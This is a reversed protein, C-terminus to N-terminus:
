FISKVAIKKTIDFFIVLKATPKRTFGLTGGIDAGRIYDSVLPSGYFCYYILISDPCHGPLNWPIPLM